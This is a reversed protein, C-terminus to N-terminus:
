LQSIYEAMEDGIEILREVDQENMNEINEMANDEPGFPRFFTWENM